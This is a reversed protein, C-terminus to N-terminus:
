GRTFDRAERKEWREKAKAAEGERTRPPTRPTELSQLLVTTAATVAKVAADFAPQNAASPRLTGSVKRM